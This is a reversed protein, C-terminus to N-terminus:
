IKFWPGLLPCIHKCDYPFATWADDTPVQETTRIRGEMTKFLGGMATRAGVSEAWGPHM